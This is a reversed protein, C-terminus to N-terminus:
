IKIKITFTNETKTEQSYDEIDLKKIWALSELKKLWDNFMKNNECEGIIKVVSIDFNIKELAKTKKVPPIVQIANLVINQSVSNGIDMIYKTLFSKNSIGSSLLIKEKLIKEDKLTNVKVITQQTLVNLSEKEALSNMYFGLLYHSLSLTTLFFALTFIWAIKFRKKFKFEAKNRNLFEKDFEIALNPYKYDLFSAVLPLERQNLTDGNIQYEKQQTQINNFSLVKNDSIELTYNSSSIRNYDKVIPLLNAMIFPGFSIHIIFFHIDSIQKIITDIHHKRSVSVFVTENQHYEFFYFEEPNAKFILDNRYGTKNEVEKHIINDGEIHLIIPYDKNLQPTFISEFNNSFFRKEITLENNKFLIEILQYELVDNVKSIGIAYYRNSYNFINKFKTTM